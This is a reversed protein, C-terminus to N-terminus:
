EFERSIQEVENDKCFPCSVVDDYINFSINCRSCFHWSEHVAVNGGKIEIHAGMVLAKAVKQRAVNYIRTLTPRSVNIIAAVEEQKM